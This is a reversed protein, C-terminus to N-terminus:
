MVIVKKEAVVNTNKEIGQLELLRERFRVVEGVVIMAPNQVGEREVVSTITNLTGTVTRQEIRTGQEIVAVPTDGNKGHNILQQSLFSLNGIGMYIAITDVAKALSAWDIDTPKGKSCHGTVVAFSNGYERHTIPIGAYAPAAIGSTIGPVVEFSLGHKALEEAEEGGRGFVFPDGGKLRVVTKGQSTFQVLLDNIIEQKMTHHTPKKGCFIIQCDPKAERLLDRNVLRDYLIVDAMRICKLAKVTILEPDGPGAGVIYAKGM